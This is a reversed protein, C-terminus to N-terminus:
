RRWKALGGHDEQDGKQSLNLIKPTKEPRPVGCAQRHTHGELNWSYILVKFFGM